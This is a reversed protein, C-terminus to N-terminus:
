ARAVRKKKTGNRKPGHRRSPEKRTKFQEQIARPLFEILDGATLSVEGLEAAGIDGSRGHLHVALRAAAFPALGQGLFAAIMGSLVDGAGATAMGPNGSANVASREADMVVTRHGKLVLVGGFRRVFREAAALREADGKPREGTLREFEGPHPTWITEARGALISDLPFSERAAAIINLADADLVIPGRRREILWRLLGRDAEIGIGPGALVADFGGLVESTLLRRWSGGDLFIAEPVAPSVASFLRRDIGVAVLGAGARYAARAALIAAGTMGESGALFLLKGYTGKHSDPERRGLAPIFDERTM